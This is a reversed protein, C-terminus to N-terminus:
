RANIGGIFRWPSDPVLYRAASVRYVAEVEAPALARAMIWPDAVQGTFNQGGTRYGVYLPLGNDSYQSAPVTGSLSGQSPRGNLYLTMTQAPADYVGVVHLWASNGVAAAASRVTVATGDASLHFEITTGNLRLLYGRSGGFGYKGLFERNGSGAPFIWAAMTMSGTLRFKSQDGFGVGQSGSSPQNVSWGYPSDTLQVGTTPPLGNTGKDGPFTLDMMRGGSGPTWGHFVKGRNLPHTLNLPSALDLSM